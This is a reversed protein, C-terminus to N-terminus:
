QVEKWNQGSRIAAITSKSVGYEDALAQYSRKSERVAAAIRDTMKTYARNLCQQKRTAWTCNSPEYGRSNDRRDITHAPSPKPGMDAAFNEFIDWRACVKVGRGGYRHYDPNNPNTCRQRMNAWTRYLPTQKGAYAQGHKRVPDRHLSAGCTKSLGSKLSTAAVVKRAGCSCLCLWRARGGSASQAAEIVELEGFQQGILDVKAVM